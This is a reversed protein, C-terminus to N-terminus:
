YCCCKAVECCDGKAAVFRFEEVKNIDEMM